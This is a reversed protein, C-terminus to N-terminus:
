LAEVLVYGNSSNQGYNLTVNTIANSVYSGGGGGGGGDNGGSSGGGGGGTYGGGGGAGGSGDSGGGAGGGGGFGGSGGLGGGSGSTNGGYFTSTSTTAGVGAGGGGGGPGNTPNGNGGKGGDGTVNNGTAGNTTDSNGYGIGGTGGNGVTGTYGYLLGNIGLHGDTGLTGSSADKGKTQATGSNGGTSGGGGGAVFLLNGASTDTKYVFTGGGGGTQYMSGTVAPRQGVVIVIIDGSNLSVRGRQIIGTPVSYSTYSTTGGAAGAVTFQYTTTKPVTWRQVGSVAMNLYTSAWSAGTATYATRLTSLAPGYQGTTSGTTFTFSTFSYLSPSTYTETVTFPIMKGILSAETMVTSNFSPYLNVNRTANSGASTWSINSGTIALGTLTSNSFGYTLSYGQDTSPLNSSGAQSAATSAQTTTFSAVNSLPTTLNYTRIPATMSAVGAPGTTRVTVTTDIATSQNVTIVGTNSNMSMGAPANSLSWSLTLLTLRTPQKTQQHM